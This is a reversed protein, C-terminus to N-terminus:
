RMLPRDNRRRKPSLRRLPRTRRSRRTTATVRVARNSEDLCGSASPRCSPPCRRLLTEGRPPSEGKFIRLSMLSRTSTPNTSPPVRIKSCSRLALLRSSRQTFAPERLAEMIGHRCRPTPQLRQLQISAGHGHRCRPQPRMSATPPVSATPTPPTPPLRKLLEKPRLLQRLLLDM